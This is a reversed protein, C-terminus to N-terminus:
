FWEHYYIDAEPDEKLIKLAEKLGKILAKWKRKSLWTYTDSEFKPDDTTEDNEDEKDFKHTKVIHNALDLMEEIDQKTYHWTFEEEGKEKTGYDWLLQRQDYGKRLYCLEIADSVATPIIGFLGSCVSTASNEDTKEKAKTKAMLWADLGM